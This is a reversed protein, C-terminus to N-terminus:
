AARGEMTAEAGIEVFSYAPWPGTVRLRLAPHQEGLDRAAAAFDDRRRGDVLYAANLVMQGAQGPVPRNAPPQRTTAAAVQALGVHLREAADTASRRVSEAASRQARRRLLYATGPRAPDEDVESQLESAAPLATFAQVGWEARGAVAELAAALEDHRQALLDGVRQDDHYITALRFPVTPVADFCAAVVRHHARVAQELWAPDSLHQRLVEEEVDHASISGVVACLDGRTVVRVPEGAVGPTAALSAPAPSPVVAYVWNAPQESM